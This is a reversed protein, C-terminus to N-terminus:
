KSVEEHALPRQFQPACTGCVSRAFSWQWEKAWGDFVRQPQTHLMCLPARCQYCNAVPQGGCSCESM